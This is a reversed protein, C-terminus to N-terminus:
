AIQDIMIIYYENYFISNSIDENVQTEYFSHKIDWDIAICDFYELTNIYGEAM